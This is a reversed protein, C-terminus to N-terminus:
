SGKKAKRRTKSQAAGKPAPSTSAGEPVDLMGEARMLDTLSLEELAYVGRAARWVLSREQLVLLAQQVASENVTAPRGSGKLMAEYAALTASEFPAFREGRAAMVRLVAAQLPTLSHLVRLTERNLEAVEEGVLERLRGPAKTADLEPEFHLADL